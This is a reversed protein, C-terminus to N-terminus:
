KLNDYIWRIGKERWGSSGESHIHIKDSRPFYEIVGFKDDEHLWKVYTAISTYGEFGINLDISLNWYVMEKFLLGRRKKPTSEYLDVWEPYDNEKM